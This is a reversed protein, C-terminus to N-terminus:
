AILIDRPRFNEEPYRTNLHAVLGAKLDERLQERTAINDVAIEVKGSRVPGETALYEIVFHVTGDPQAPKRQRSFEQAIITKPM